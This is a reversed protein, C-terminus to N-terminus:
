AKKYTGRAKTVKAEQAGEDYDDLVPNNHVCGYVICIRTYLVTYVSYRAFCGDICALNSGYVFHTYPLRSGGARFM